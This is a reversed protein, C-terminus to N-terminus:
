YCFGHTIGPNEAEEKPLGELMQDLLTISDSFEPETNNKDFAIGKERYAIKVAELLFQRQEENIDINYCGPVAVQTKAPM